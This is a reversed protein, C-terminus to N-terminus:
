GFVPGSTPWGTETICVPKNGTATTTENFIYNFIVTVNSFANAKDKTYYPYFDTGIFDVAAILDSHSCNAWASWSDVHGVPKNSLPTNAISSRLQKIFDVIDDPEKAVDANNEIGSESIRYVDERDVCIGVM